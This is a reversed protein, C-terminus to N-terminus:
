GETKEDFTKRLPYNVSSTELAMIFTYTRENFMITTLMMM